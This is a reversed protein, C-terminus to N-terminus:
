SSPSRDQERLKDDPAIHIEVRRNRERGAASDNGAVPRAFGMGMIRLRQQSVGAAVLADAVAKARRESLHIDFGAFGRDDTHGVVTLDSHAYKNVVTAIKRLLDRSQPALAASNSQFLAKEPLTVIIGDGVRLTEAVPKLAQAQRDMYRSIAAGAVINDKGGIVARRALGGTEAAAEIGSAERQGDHLGACAALLTCCLSCILLPRSRHVTIMM